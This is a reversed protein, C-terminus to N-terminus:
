LEDFEENSNSSDEDPDIDTSVVIKAAECLETFCTHLPDIAGTESGIEPCLDKITKAFVVYLCAPKDAVEQLKNILASLAVDNADQSMKQCMRIMEEAKSKTKEAVATMALFLNAISQEGSALSVCCTRHKKMNHINYAKGLKIDRKCNMCKLTFKDITKVNVEKTNFAKTVQVAMRKLKEDNADPLGHLELEDSVDNENRSSTTPRTLTKYMAEAQKITGKPLEV